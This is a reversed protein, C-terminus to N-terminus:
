REGEKEGPVFNHQWGLRERNGCLKCEFPTYAEGEKDCPNVHVLVDEVEEVTDIIKEKALKGIDHGRQVTIEPDVCLKLDVLIRPGNFRAKVEHVSRVGEVSLATDGIKQVTEKDPATDILERVADIYIRIGSYGIMAAVVLGAVPDLFPYGLIAGGVGILAAVSSLGDTRHHWADAIVASSRIRKGVRITYQYMGEKFVISLVAAYLALTGPASYDGTRLVGIASWGIGAGTLILLIAILKAVVSELKAHGYHHGADPPQSALKLGGLVVVSGAIDSASHFADAVMATSGAIIGAVAKLAMLLVNIFMGIWTVRLGEKYRQESM